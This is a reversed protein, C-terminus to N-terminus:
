GRSSQDLPFCNIQLVRARSSTPRETIRLVNLPRGQIGVSGHLIYGFPPLSEFPTDDPM